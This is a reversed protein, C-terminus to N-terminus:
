DEITKEVEGHHLNSRALGFDCIQVNCQTNVLFNAPKLDRHIINTSHLYQISCLMNYLITIVHDETLKSGKVSNMLQRLDGQGKEMVIFIHDFKEDNILLTDNEDKTANTDDSISNGAM